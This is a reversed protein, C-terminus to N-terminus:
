TVVATAPSVVTTSGSANTATVAVRLTMGADAPSVFYTAATAGDISVCNAGSADCRQWQYAFASPRGVWTGTAATLTQGQAATGTISPPGLNVPAGALPAIVATPASVTTTSGVANTATVEVRMTAGADDDLLVHTSSTAGAIDTCVGAPDCRQWQYALSVPRNRWTGGFATLLQGVAPSGSVAPLVSAGPFLGATMRAGVPRALRSLDSRSLRMDARGEFVLDAVVRDVRFFGLEAPFTGIFTGITLTLGISEEGAGFGFPLSVRVFDPEFGLAKKLAGAIAQRGAKTGLVRRLQVFEAAAISASRELFLDNELGLLRKGGVRATLSAFEREYEAVSSTGVYGQRKVRAGPPLDSAHLAMKALDPSGRPPKIAVSAPTPVALGVLIAAAALAGSM